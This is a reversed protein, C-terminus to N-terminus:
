AGDHMYCSLYIVASFLGHIQLPFPVHNGLAADETVGSSRSVFGLFIMVKRADCAGVLKKCVNSYKVHQMAPAKM